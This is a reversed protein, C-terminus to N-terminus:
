RPLWELGVNKSTWSIDAPAGPNIFVQVIYSGGSGPFDTAAAGLGVMAVEVTLTAPPPELRWEGSTVLLEDVLPNEDLEPLEDWLDIVQESTDLQRRPFYAVTSWTPFAGFDAFGSDQIGFLSLHVSGGGIVDNGGTFTTKVIVDCDIFSCSKPDIDFSM